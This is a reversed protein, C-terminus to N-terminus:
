VKIRMICHNKGKKDIYEFGLKEFIQRTSNYLFSSSVSMEKTDQPYSEVIGGGLERIIHLAGELAFLSIGKQRLHKDVFFCTIRWDPTKTKAEVEKKHYINSLDSVPGFQAWAVCTDEHFVLAAKAKGEEVLKKKFSRHGEFSRHYDPTKEHFQTCWCGGWVGNHKL